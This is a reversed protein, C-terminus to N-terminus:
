ELIPSGNKGLVVTSGKQLAASGQPPSVSSALTAPAPRNSPTVKAHRSSGASAPIVKEESPRSAPFVSEDTVPAATPTPSVAPPAAPLAEPAARVSPAQQAREGLLYVALWALMAGLVVGVLMQVPLGRAGHPRAIEGDSLTDTGPDGAPATAADTFEARWVQRNARDALGLLAAGLARMSEFRRKPDRELARLVIDDLEPPLERNLRGPPVVRANVIAHLLDYHGDGRFPRRGTASEYLMVGIAYQDSAASAFRAGRTLEPAMYQVTGLLSESRTLAGQGDDNDRLMSIGFDLVVPHLPLPVRRALMVNAPKLDRHVIGADHAAAVASVIPLFVRLLEPLPLRERRALYASLDDGELLEMVLYPLGEETGIDLVRLVHEHRIGAAARAERQFRAAALPQAALAPDLVKLAVRAGLKEHRAELVTAMGGRGITRVVLYSGFRSPLTPPADSSRPTRTESAEHM